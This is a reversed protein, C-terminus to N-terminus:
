LHYKECYLYPINSKTILLANKSVSFVDVDSPTNPELFFNPIVKKMQNFSANETNFVVIKKSEWIPSIGFNTRDFLVMRQVLSEKGFEDSLLGSINVIGKDNGSKYDIIGTFTTKDANFMVEARCTVTSTKMKSNYYIGSGFIIFLVCFLYLFLLYQKGNEPTKM